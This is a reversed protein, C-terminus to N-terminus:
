RWGTPCNKWKWNMCDISGFMGPFGRKANETLQREIDEETPQRLYVSAFNKIVGVCFRNFSEWILTQSIRLYEDLSDSSCGYALMRIAATCKQLSSAGLLGAADRRQVFFNDTETIKRCIRIFLRKSMRFRRRFYVSNYTPNVAFYDNYIRQHGGRFDRYINPRKYLYIRRRKVVPFLLSHTEDDENIIYEWILENYVDDDSSSSEEEM